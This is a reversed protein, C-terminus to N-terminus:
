EVVDGRQGGVVPTQPPREGARESPELLELRIDGRLRARQAVLQVASRFRAAEAQPRPHALALAPVFQGVLDPSGSVLPPATPWIVVPVSASSKRRPAFKM